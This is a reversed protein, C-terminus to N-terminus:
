FVRAVRLYRRRVEALHRVNASKLTEHILSLYPMSPLRVRTSQRTSSTLLRTHFFCCCCSFAVAPRSRSTPRSFAAVQAVFRDRNCTCALYAERVYSITTPRAKDTAVDRTYIALEARFRSHSRSGTRRRNRFTREPKARTHSLDCINGEIESRGKWCPLIYIYISM